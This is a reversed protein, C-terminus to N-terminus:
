ANRIRSYLECEYEGMLKGWGYSSEPHAPYMDEEKFLTSSNPDNQKELPIHVPPVLM